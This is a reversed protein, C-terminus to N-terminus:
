QDSETTTTEAPAETTTEAPAETTTEAPPAAQMEADELTKVNLEAQNIFPVTGSIYPVTETHAARVVWVVVNQGFVNEGNIYQAPHWFNKERTQNKIRPAVGMEDAHHRLIYVEDHEKLPFDIANKGGPEKVRLINNVGAIRQAEERQERWQSGDFWFVESQSQGGPTVDFAFMSAYAPWGHGTEYGPGNRQYTPILVGDEFFQWDVIYNYPGYRLGSHFERVFTAGTHYHSRLKFGPPRDDPAWHEDLPPLDMKGLVGPGTLGLNDHFMVNGHPDGVRARPSTFFETSYKGGHPPYSTLSVSCAARDLVKTGDYSASFIMGDTSSDKWDVTWGNQKVPRPTDVKVKPSYHGHGRFLWPSESPQVDDMESAPPLDENVSVQNAVKPLPEKVRGTPKVGYKNEQVNEADWPYVAQAYVLEGPQPNDPWNKVEIGTDVLLYDNGRPLIFVPYTIEGKKYRPSYTSISTVKGIGVYWNKGEILRRVPEKQATAELIRQEAEGYKRTYEYSFPEGITLGTLEDADKSIRARIERNNITRVPHQGNRLGQMGGNTVEFNESGNFGVTDYGVWDDFGEFSGYFNRIIKNVEPHSLAVSIARRKRHGHM